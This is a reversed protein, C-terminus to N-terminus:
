LLQIGGVASTTNGVDRRQFHCVTTALRVGFSQVNICTQSSALDHRRRWEIGLSFEVRILCNLYFTM